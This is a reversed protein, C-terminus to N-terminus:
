GLAVLGTGSLGAPGESLNVPPSTVSDRWALACPELHAAPAGGRGEIRTMLREFSLEALREVPQVVASVSPFTAEMWEADDFGVLSIDVPCRIGRRRFETLAALTGRQFVSYVATPRVQDLRRAIESRLLGIAAGSQLVDIQLSPMSRAAEDLFGSIRVNANKSIDDPGIVLVRNHGAQRLHRCVVASAAANDVAVTDYIPDSLARDVLVGSMQLRKMESAGAGRESRVPALILGAVRWAHMRAVQAAEREESDHSSTISLSYGEAEALLELKSAWRGFFANELDPVILGIIKRTKRRLDAALPDVRYDIAEVAQRIRDANAKKISRNGRLYKSVTAASVGALRAVDHISPRGTDLM